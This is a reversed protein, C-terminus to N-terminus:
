GGGDSSLLGNRILFGRFSPYLYKAGAISLHNDDFYLLAKGSYPRCVGMDPLTRICLIDFPDYVFFGPLDAQIRKLGSLYQLRSKLFKNRRWNIAYGNKCESGLAFSPRFWQVSCYGEAMEGSSLAPYEPNPAVVVIKGGYRLFDKAFRRTASVFNNPEWYNASLVFIKDGKLRQNIALIAKEIYKCKGQSKQTVPVICGDNFINMVAVKDYEWLLETMPMLMGSHSDGVFVIVSDSHSKSPAFCRNIWEKSNMDVDIKNRCEDSQRNTYEGQYGKAATTVPVREHRSGVYLSIAPSIAKLAYLALGSTGILIFGLGLSRLPMISWSAARLPNEIFRYSFKAMLFILLAILPVSWWHVGITWRTIALIGWHWLYLSYSIRGISVLKEHSLVKYILTPSQGSLSGILLASISVVLVTSLVAASRPLFLVIILGLVLLFPLSSRKAMCDETVKENRLTLFTLVGAGLEWFRFPMLFYVASQHDAYLFIFSLLSVMSLFGIGAMLRLSGHREQRGFGSFWVLLPFLLYFQEEVGLSWTHIFPNLEVSQSFYDTSKIFLYINSIGFVSSIGTELAIQPSPNFLCIMVGNVLVFAVLAPILRKIRREYFSVIFDSLDKSKRKALSSTIVYGSIVFFVDVGLYGGPLISANFHNVIVAIVAFARLGDIDPRYRIPSLAQSVLPLLSGAVSNFVSRLM